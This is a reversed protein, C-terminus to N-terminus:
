LTGFDQLAAALASAFAAHTEPEAWRAVERTDLAHHTEIIVTPVKSAHLFYVRTKPGRIDIFGGDTSDADYLGGYNYGDYPQLGAEQMRRSVARGLRARAAVTAKDGDPSWLVAFGPEADNRYCVEGGDRQLWATAEGRADTHLSIIVDAKWAEAEALRKPYSPEDAGARSRKLEFLGTKELAGYLKDEGDLTVDCERQCLCGTNGHNDKAGHGADLYVRLKHKTPKPADLPHLSGPDPWATLALLLLATV